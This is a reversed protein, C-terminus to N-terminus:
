PQVVFTSPFPNCLMIQSKEPKEDDHLPQTLKEHLAMMWISVEFGFDCERACCFFNHHRPSDEREYKLTLQFELFNKFPSLQLNVDNSNIRNDFPKTNSNWAEFSKSICLQFGLYSLQHLINRKSLNLPLLPSSARHLAQATYINKFIRSSTQIKRILGQPLILKLGFRIRSGLYVFGKLIVALRFSVSM